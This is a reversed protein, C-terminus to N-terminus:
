HLPCAALPKDDRYPSYVQLMWQASFDATRQAVRNVVDACANRAVQDDDNDIIVHVTSDRSDVTCLKVLGTSEIAPCLGSTDDAVTQKTALSGQQSGSRGCGGALLSLALMALAM